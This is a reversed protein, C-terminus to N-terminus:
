TKVKKGLMLVEKRLQSLTANYRSYDHGEPGKKELVERIQLELKSNAQELTRVEELYSALRDNLNQMTAKEDVVGLEASDELAQRLFPGSAM